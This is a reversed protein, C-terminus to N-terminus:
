NFTWTLVSSDAVWRNNGIFTLTVSTGVATAEIYGGGGGTSSVSAGIRITNSGSPIIRIGDADDVYFTYTMGAEGTPLTYDVRATTAQNDLHGFTEVETVTYAGTKSTVVRKTELAGTDSYGGADDGIVVAARSTDGFMSVTYTGQMVIKNYGNKINVVTASIYPTDSGLMKIEDAWLLPVSVSTSSLRTIPSDALTTGGSFYPITGTTGSGGVGSGTASYAVWGTNGSGSEKVYISTGASGDTRHFITGVPATEASEPSGSGWREYKSALAGFGSSGDNVKLSAAALRQIGSDTAASYAGSTWYLPINSKFNVGGSNFGVIDTGATEMVVYPSNWWLGADTRNIFSLSPSGASGNNVQLLGAMTMSGGTPVVSFVGASTTKLRTRFTADYDISLADGSNQITTLGTITVAGAANIGNVEISGSSPVGSSAQFNVVGDSTSEMRSRSTWRIVSSTGATLSGGSTVTGSTALAGTVNLTGFSPAITGTATTFDFYSSGAANELRFVGVGTPSFAGRGNFVLSRGTAATFDGVTTTVHSGTVVSSATFAGTVNLTGGSPAITGTATTFDFYSSGGNNRLRWVGDASAEWYGWTGLQFYGGNAGTFGGATAIINGGSSTINGAGTISGMATFNSLSLSGMNATTGDTLTLNAASARKMGLDAAAGGAFINVNNYWLLPVDSAMGFETTTGSLKYNGGATGGTSAQFYRGLLGGGSSGVTSVATITGNALVNSHLTSGTGPTGTSNAFGVVGASSRVAITDDTGSFVSTAHSNWAVKGGSVLKFREEAGEVSLANGTTRYNGASSSGSLGFNGTVSVTGGDSVFTANGSSNVTLKLAHTNDYGWRQQETTSIVELKGGNSTTTGILFKGGSIRAAETGSNWYQINSGDLIFPKYAAATRDYSVLYGIDLGSVYQMEIGPGSFGSTFAGTARIAASTVNGTVQLSTVPSATGIGVKGDRKIALYEVSGDYKQFRLGDFRGYLPDEGGSADGNTKVYFVSNASAAFDSGQRPIKLVNNIVVIGGSPAIDFAGASTTKLRTRFTADYDISVADGSNQFSQLATFTNATGFLDFSVLNKSGDTKVFQSATLGSFNGIAGGVTGSVSLNGTVNVAGGSPQLFLDGVSSTLIDVFNTAGGDPDNFILRLNNGTDSNIDVRRVPNTTGIGLGVTNLFMKYDYGGGIAWEHALVARSLMRDGHAADGLILTSSTDVELVAFDFNDGPDRVAIYLPNEALIPTGITLPDVAPLPFTGLYLAGGRAIQISGGDVHLKNAPTLTGVGFYGGMHTLQGIVATNTGGSILPATGGTGVQLSTSFQATAAELGALASNNALIVRVTTGDPALGVYNTTTGGFTFRNFGTGTSDYVTFVGDGAASIKGNSGFVYSRGSGATFDGTTTTVSAGSIAGSVALGGTVNLIGDAPVIPDFTGPLITVRFVPDVTVAGSVASIRGAYVVDTATTTTTFAVTGSTVTITVYGTVNNPCTFTGGAYSYLTGDSLLMKFSSLSVGLGGTARLITYPSLTYAFVNTGANANLGQVISTTNTNQAFFAPVVKDKPDKGLLTIQGFSSSGSVMLLVLLGARVRWPSRYGEVAKRLGVWIGLCGGCLKSGM